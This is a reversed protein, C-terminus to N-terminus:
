CLFPGGFVGVRGGVVHPDDIREVSRRIKQMAERLVTYGDRQLVLSLDRLANDVIRHAVIQKGRRAPTSCEQVIM